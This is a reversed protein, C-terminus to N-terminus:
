NQSTSQPHHQRHPRTPAPRTSRNSGSATLADVAPSNHATSSLDSRNHAAPFVNSARRSACVWGRRSWVSLVVRLGCTGFVGLWFPLMSWGPREDRERLLGFSDNATERRFIAILTGRRQCGVLARDLGGHSFCEPSYEVWRYYNRGNLLMREYTPFAMPSAIVPHVIASIFLFATVAWAIRLDFLTITESPSGPPGTLPYTVIPLTFSTALVLIAAGQVAHM